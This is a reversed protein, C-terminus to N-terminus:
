GFTIGLRKLSKQINSINIYVRCTECFGMDEESQLNFTYEYTPLSKWKREKGDHTAIVNECKPCTIMINDIMADKMRATRMRKRRSFEKKAWVADTFIGFIDSSHM